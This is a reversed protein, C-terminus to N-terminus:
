RRRRNEVNQRHEVITQYIALAILGTVFAPFFVGWLLVYTITTKAAESALLLMAM